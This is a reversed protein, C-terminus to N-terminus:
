PLAQFQNQFMASRDPAPDTGLCVSLFATM